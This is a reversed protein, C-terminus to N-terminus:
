TPTQKSSEADVNRRNARFHKMVQNATEHLQGFTILASITQECNRTPDRLVIGAFLLLVNYFEEAVLVICWLVKNKRYLDLRHGGYLKIRGRGRIYALHKAM